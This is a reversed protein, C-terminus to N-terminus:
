FEDELHESKGCTKILGDVRSKMQEVVSQISESGDTFADVVCLGDKERFVSFYINEWGGMAEDRFVSIKYGRYHM